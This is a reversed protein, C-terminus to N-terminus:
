LYMEPGSHPEPVAASIQSNLAMQGPRHQKDRHATCFLLSMRLFLRKFTQFATFNFKFAKNQIHTECLPIHAGKNFIFFIQKQWM